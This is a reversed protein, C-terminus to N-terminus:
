VARMGGKCNGKGKMSTIYDNANTWGDTQKNTLKNTFLM